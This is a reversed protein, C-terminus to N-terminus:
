YCYDDIHTGNLDWLYGCDGGNNWIAVSNHYNFGCWEPHQENTYIRCVQGPQIVFSPFTFVHNQVDRLTWNNLQIPFGEKNQIEVYEDPEEPGKVGDYFISTIQINGTNHPQPTPTLTPTLTPKPTPTLTPTLTPKPTPTHTPGFYFNNSILSLYQNLISIQTPTNTQTPTPADTNEPTPTNTWTPSPLPTETETPTPIDTNEPTPTPGGDIVTVVIYADRNYPTPDYENAIVSSNVSFPPPIYPLINYSIDFEVSEGVAVNEVNCQGMWDMGGGGNEVWECRPDLFYPYPEPYNEYQYQTDLIRVIVNTAIDPGLNTAGVKYSAISGTYVITPGTVHAVMDAVPDQAKVPVSFIIFIIVLIFLLIFIFTKMNNKM